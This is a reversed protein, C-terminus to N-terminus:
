NVDRFFKLPQMTQTDIYTEYRDRVKYIWDYKANSGGVGVAHFAIKGNLKELKNSFTADGAHIYVGALSYFVTYSIEEGNQTTTNKIICSNTQGNAVIAFLLFFGACYNSLKM